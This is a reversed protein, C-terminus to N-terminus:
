ASPNIIVNRLDRRIRQLKGGYSRPSMKLRSGAEEYTCGSLWTDMIKRDEPKMHGVYDQLRDRALTYNLYYVPDNMPNNQAVAGYVEGSEGIQDELHVMNYLPGRCPASYRRMLSYVKRQLVVSLFTRFGCDQDDRYNEIAELIALRAELLIDERYPELPRFARVASNIM